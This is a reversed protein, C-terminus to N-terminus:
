LYDVAKRMESKDFAYDLRALVKNDSGAVIFCPEFNMGYTQVVPSILKQLDIGEAIKKPETYVEAHIVDWNSSKPLEILLELVPGCISTQCFGPTSVIVITETFDLESHTIKLSFEDLQNIHYSSDSQAYNPTSGLSIQSFGHHNNSLIPPLGTNSYVSEFEDGHMENLQLLQLSDSNMSSAFAVPITPTSPTKAGGDYFTDTIIEIFDPMTVQNSSELLDGDHAFRLRTNPIIRDMIAQSEAIQKTASVLKQYKDYNSVELQEDLSIKHTNGIKQGFESSIALDESLNISYETNEYTSWGNGSISFVSFVLTIVLFLSFPKSNM